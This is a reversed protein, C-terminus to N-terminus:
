RRYLPVIVHREQIIAFSTIVTRKIPLNMHKKEIPREIMYTPESQTVIEIDLM